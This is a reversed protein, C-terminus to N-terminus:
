CIISAAYSTSTRGATTARIVTKITGNEQAVACGALDGGMCGKLEQGAQKIPQVRVKGNLTGM